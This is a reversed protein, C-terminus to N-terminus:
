ALAPAESIEFISDLNTLRLVERVAETPNALKVYVGAAQLSILVGIGAADIATVEALDLIIERGHHQVAACLLNTEEARVLRGECQLVVADGLEQVTVNLV